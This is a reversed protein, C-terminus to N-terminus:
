FFSSDREVRVVDECFLLQDEVDVAAFVFFLNDVLVGFTLVISQVIDEFIFEFVVFEEAFILFFNLLHHAVHFFIIVGDSFFSLSASLLLFLLLDFDFLVSMVFLFLFCQRIALLALQSQTFQIDIVM